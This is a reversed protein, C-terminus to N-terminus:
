KQNLYRELNNLTAKLAEPRLTYKKEGDKELEIKVLGALRLLQLHHTITPPRLRLKHALLTPTMPEQSLYQLLQLRTPDALAKLTSVMSGQSAESPILSQDSPRCGFLIFMQSESIKRFVVLPTSWYSPALIVEPESITKQFDIGQSLDELLQLPELKMSKKQADDLAKRLVPLIRVEEEAFFSEYYSLMMLQFLQGFAATDSWARILSQLAHEDLPGGRLHYEKQLFFAQKSSAQHSEAIEQLIQIAVPSAELPTFLSPLITEPKLRAIYQVADSAMKTKEPLGYIWGMPTYYIESLSELFQRQALPLRSRVGAAWSPRLGFKVPQNLVSLSLFLDYTTGIDWKLSLM